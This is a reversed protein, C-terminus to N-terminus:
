HNSLKLSNILGAMAKGVTTCQNLLENAVETTLLNLDRSLLIQTQLEMLSGRAHYLSAAFEKGTNRGKGEAINSPISVTARRMQSTLGYLESKPFKDTAIYISKTLLISSQWVRLDQFSSSM